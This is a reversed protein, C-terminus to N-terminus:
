KLPALGNLYKEINTYGDKDSGLNADSPDHPNLQHAIEWADPMGDNDSDLPAEASKLEPWGGVQIQTDIIKGTRNRVDDALRADVIDRKPLSAGVTPLVLEVLDKAPVTTIHPAEFPQDLTRVEQKMVKVGNTNIEEMSTASFFRTNDVTSRM